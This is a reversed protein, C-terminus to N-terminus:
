APEMIHTIATSVRRWSAAEVALERRGEATLGYYKARRNNDSLGWESQLLGRV